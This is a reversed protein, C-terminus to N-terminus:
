IRDPPSQEKAIAAGNDMGFENGPLPRADLLDCYLNARTRPVQNNNVRNFVLQFLQFSGCEFAAISSCLYFRWMRCFRDDFQQRVIDVSQDFRYLWHQLTQAYHLRLNEVDLVTLDHPELIAMMESLAPPYSGPFIRQEMWASMPQPFNRGITHILGFGNPGLCANIVDGLQRYSKKGVHELMGVSVFADCRGRINRWDSEIFKVRDALGESQALQRAYSIQQHSLNYAEVTVGFRRAM